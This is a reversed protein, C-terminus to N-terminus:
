KNDVTIKYLGSNRETYSPHTYVTDTFKADLPVGTLYSYNTWATDGDMRYKIIGNERKLHVPRNNLRQTTRYEVGEVMPPNDYEWESWTGNRFYRCLKGYKVGDTSYYLEQVCAHTISNNGGSISVLGWPIHNNIQNDIDYFSAWGAYKVEDLQAQNYKPLNKDGLGFKNAAAGLKELAEDATTAGTGGKSIAVPKAEPYILIPFNITENSTCVIRQNNDITEGTFDQIRFPYDSYDYEETAYIESGLYHCDGPGPSGHHRAQCKNKMLKEM